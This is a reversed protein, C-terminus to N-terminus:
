KSRFIVSYIPQQGQGHPHINFTNFDGGVPKEGWSAITEGNQGNEDREVFEVYVVNVIETTDSGCWKVGVPLKNAMILAIWDRAAEVSVNNILYSLHEPTTGTPSCLEVTELPQDSSLEAKKNEGKQCAFMVLMAITVCAIGFSSIKKNHMRTDGKISPQTVTDM